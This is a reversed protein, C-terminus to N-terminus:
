KCVTGHDPATREPGAQTDAHKMPRVTPPPSKGGGSDGHHQPCEPAPLSVANGDKDGSPGPMGGSPLEAPGGEGPLDNQFDSTWDRRGPQEMSTTYEGGEWTSDDYPEDPIGDGVVRQMRRMIGTEEVEGQVHDRGGHGEERVSSGVPEGGGSM